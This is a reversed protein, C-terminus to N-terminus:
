ITVRIFSSSLRTMSIFLCCSYIPIVVNELQPAAKTYLPLGAIRRENRESKSLVQISFPIFNSYSGMISITIGHGRGSGMCITRTALSVPRIFTRIGTDIYGGPITICIYSSLLTHYQLSFCFITSPISVGTITVQM